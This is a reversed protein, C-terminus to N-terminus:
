SVRYILAITHNGSKFNRYSALHDLSLFKLDVVSATNRCENVPRRIRLAKM